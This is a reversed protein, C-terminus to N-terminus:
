VTLYYYNHFLVWLAADQLLSPSIKQRLNINTTSLLAFPSEFAMLWIFIFIIAAIFYRQFYYALRYLMQTTARRNKNTGPLLLLLNATASHVRVYFPVRGSVSFVVVAVIFGTSITASMYGFAARTHGDSDCLHQQIRCLHLVLGGLMRSLPLLEVARRLYYSPYSFIAFRHNIHTKTWLISWGSVSLHRVISLPLMNWRDLWPLYGNTRTFNSHRHRNWCRSSCILLLISLAM